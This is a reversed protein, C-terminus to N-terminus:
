DSLVEWAALEAGWCVEVEMVGIAKVKVITQIIKTIHLSHHIITVSLTTCM